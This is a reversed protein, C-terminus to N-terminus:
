LSQVEQLAYSICKTQSTQPKTKHNTHGPFYWPSLSACCSIHFVSELWEIFSLFLGNKVVDNKIIGEKMILFLDLDAKNFYWFNIISNADFTFSKWLQYEEVSKFSLDSFMGRGCKM